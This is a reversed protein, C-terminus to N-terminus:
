NTEHPFWTAYATNNEPSPTRIGSTWTLTKFVPKPRSEKDDSAAQLCSELRFDSIEPSCFFQDSNEVTEKAYDRFLKRPDTGNANDTIFETGWEFPRVIRNDNLMAFHRERKHMWRKIM